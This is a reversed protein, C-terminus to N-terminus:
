ASVESVTWWHQFTGSRRIRQKRGTIRARLNAVALATSWYNVDKDAFRAQPHM